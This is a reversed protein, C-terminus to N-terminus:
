GKINIIPTIFDVTKVVIGDQAAMVYSLDKYADPAEDLTTENVNALIGEMQSQFTALAINKKAFGRSMKRGAGHSASSLYEANGLGETIYVGSKM